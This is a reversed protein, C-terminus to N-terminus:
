RACRSRHLPRLLHPPSLAAIAEDASSGHRTVDPALAEDVPRRPPLRARVGPLCTARLRCATPAPRRHRQCRGRDPRRHPGYHHRPQADLGNFPEDMMVLKEARLSPAHSSSVSASGAASRGSATPLGPRRLNVRERSHRREGERRRQHAQGVRGRRHPGHHRGRHRERPLYPGPRRKATSTLARQKWGVTGSLDLLRRVIDASLRRAAATLRVLLAQGRVRRPDGTLAPYRCGAAGRRSLSVLRGM